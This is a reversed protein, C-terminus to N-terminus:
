TCDNASKGLRKISVHSSAEEHPTREEHGLRQRRILLLTAVGGNMFVLTIPLLCTALSYSELAFIAPIFKVSNLTFSSVSDNFPKQWGKKISPFYGAVDASTAFIAAYMASKAYFFAFLASVTLTASIGDSWSLEWRNKFFSLGSIIFCVVSTTATVWSGPGAGRVWQALFAVSTALGFLFWSVPHPQIQKDRVTQRIYITYAAFMIALSLLGLGSKSLLMKV